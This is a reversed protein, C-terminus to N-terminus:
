RSSEPQRFRGSMGHAIDPEGANEINDLEDSTCTTMCRAEKSPYTRTAPKLLVSTAATALMLLSAILLSVRLGHLFAARDAILAGFVAVALAGGVQRSANFVGSATGAREAPVRDLLLATVAPLAIVGGTGVPIMLLVLLWTPASASPCCLLVLGVAMLLQGGIIPMRPGFRETLWAAAPSLVATLVTMPLFALGTELSSLNRTQQLYLSLLFVMGYFGVNVAFGVGASVAMTRARLFGLPVMPHKGRAQSVLFVVAAMFAVALAGPVRPEGFGGAGAEIVGYTLGGMALVAAIQGIWDFPVERRSSRATRALFFLALLGVPLNIYFIM